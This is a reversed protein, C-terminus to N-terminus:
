QLEWCGEDSLWKDLCSCVGGSSSSSNCELWQQGRALGVAM